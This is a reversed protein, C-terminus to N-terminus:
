EEIRELLGRLIWRIKEKDYALNPDNIREAIYEIQLMAELAGLQHLSIAASEIFSAQEDSGLRAFTLGLSEWDLMVKASVGESVEIWESM